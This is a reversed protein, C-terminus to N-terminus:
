RYGIGFMRVFSFIVATTIVTRSITFTGPLTIGTVFYTLLSALPYLAGLICFGAVAWYCWKGIYHDNTFAYSTPLAAFFLGLALLIFLPNITAALLLMALALLVLGGVVAGEWKELRKLSRRAFKDFLMTFSALGRALTGWFVLVLWAGGLTYAAWPAVSKLYTFAFRYIVYGGLWFMMQRGATIKDIFADFRVLSRYIVSRARYSEVLGMRAAESMPNLRLAETFHENAKKHDGRRLANWGASSHSSDDEPNKELQSRVLHDHDEQKGQQMLAVSLVEASQANDPDLELSKRAAAEAEKWKKLRLYTRGLTIHALVNDPDLRAAEHAEALAERVLGDQGDKALNGLAMSRVCHVFSDEPDLEVARKATEAAEAEKGPQSMLCLALWAYPISIDPELAIAQRLWHAAEDNRSRDMLMQARQLCATFDPTDQTTDM